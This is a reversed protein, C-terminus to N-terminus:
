YSGILVFIPAQKSVNDGKNYTYLRLIGFSHVHLESQLKVWCWVPVPFRIEPRNEALSKVM